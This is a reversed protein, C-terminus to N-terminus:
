LVIKNKIFELVNKLDTEESPEIKSQIKIHKHHPHTKVNLQINEEDVFETIEFDKVVPSNELQNILDYM